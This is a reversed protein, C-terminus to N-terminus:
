DTMFPFDTNVLGGLLIWPVDCLLFGYTHTANHFITWQFATIYVLISWKVWSSVSVIAVQVLDLSCSWDLLNLVGYTILLLFLHLFHTSPVHLPANTSHKPLTPIEQPSSFLSRSIYMILICLKSTHFQWIIFLLYETLFLIPLFLLPWCRAELCIILFFSFIWIHVHKCTYIACM